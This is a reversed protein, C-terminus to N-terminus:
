KQKRRLLIQAAKKSNILTAKNTQEELSLVNRRVYDLEDSSLEFSNTISDLHRAVVVFDEETSFKQAESEYFLRLDELTRLERLIMM